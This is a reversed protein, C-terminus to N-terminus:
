QCGKSYDFSLQYCCQFQDGRGAQFDRLNIWAHEGLLEGHVCLPDFGIGPRQAWSLVAVLWDFKEVGLLNRNRIGSM